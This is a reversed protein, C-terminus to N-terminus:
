RERYVSLDCGRKSSVNVFFVGSGHENGADVEQVSCLTAVTSVITGMAVDSQQESSQLGQLMEQSVVPQMTPMMSQQLNHPVLIVQSSPMKPLLTRQCFVPKKQPKRKRPIM